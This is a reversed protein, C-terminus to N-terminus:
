LGSLHVSQGLDCLEGASCIIWTELWHEKGELSKRRGMWTREHFLGGRSWSKETCDPLSVTHAIHPPMMGVGPELWAGCAQVSRSDM